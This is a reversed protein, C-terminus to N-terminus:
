PRSGAPDTPGNPGVGAIRFAALALESRRAPPWEEWVREGEMNIAFVWRRGSAELWGVIWGNERTATVESTGTKGHLRWGNGSELLSIERLVDMNREAVGLEGALLGALFTVQEEASIKLPGQLWFSDVDGAGGIDRNGYGFRDVWTRMREHGVRRAMEQYYWYVSGSFASRLSHPRAWHDPFFGTRPTSASDWPLTFGTDPAVGTELAILTNPIKFTSAPRVRVRARDPHYTIRDGTGTELIM